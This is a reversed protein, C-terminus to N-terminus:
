EEIPCLAQVVVVGLMGSVQDDTDNEQRLQRNPSVNVALRLKKLGLIGIIRANQANYKLPPILLSDHSWVWGGGGACFKM